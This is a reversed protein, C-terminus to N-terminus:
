SLHTGQLMVSCQLLAYIPMSIHILGYGVCLLLLFVQAALSLLHQLDKHQLLLSRIQHFLTIILSGTLDPLKPLYQTLKLHTHWLHLAYLERTCIYLQQLILRTGQRHYLPM